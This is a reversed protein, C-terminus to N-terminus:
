SQELLRDIARYVRKDSVPYATGQQQAVYSIRLEELMWRIETVEPDHRQAPPLEAL